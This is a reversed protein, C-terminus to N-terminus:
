QAAGSPAGTDYIDGAILIADLGERRALSLAEKLMFASDELLDYERLRKGLHLDSLHLFKM